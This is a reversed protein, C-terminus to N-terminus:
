SSWLFGLGYSLGSPLWDSLSGPMTVAIMIVMIMIIDIIMMVVMVTIEDDERVWIGDSDQKCYFWFTRFSRVLSRVM